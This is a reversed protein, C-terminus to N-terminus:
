RIEKAYTADNINIRPLMNEDEENYPLPYTMLVRDFISFAARINGASCAYVSGFPFAMDTVPTKFEEELQKKSQKLDHFLSAEDMFRSLEHRFRHSGLIAKSDKLMEKLMESSLYGERNLYENCVFLYYPVDKEKLLPFANEYVSAYVDDFCIVVNDPDKERILTELDVIKKKECLANLFKSFHEASIAYIDGDESVKHMMYVRGEDSRMRKLLVYIRQYLIYYLRKLM